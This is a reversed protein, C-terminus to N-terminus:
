TRVVYESYLVAKTVRNKEESLSPGSAAHRVREVVSDGWKTDSYLSKTVTIFEFENSYDGSNCYHGDNCWRFIPAGPNM